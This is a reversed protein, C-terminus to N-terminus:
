SARKTKSSKYLRKLEKRGTSSLIGFHLRKRAMMGRALRVQSKVEEYITKFKLHLGEKALSKLEYFTIFEGENLRGWRTGSKVFTNHFFAVKPKLPELHAEKAMKKLTETIRGTMIDNPCRTGCTYCSVCQWVLANNLARERDGLLIMRILRDPTIFGTEEGVPCGAACRRCQYCAVLVQGSRNMVEQVFPAVMEPNVELAAVAENPEM